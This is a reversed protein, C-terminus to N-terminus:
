RTTCTMQNGYRECNTTTPRNIPMQYAPVQYPPAVYVPQRYAGHPNWGEQAACGALPVLAVLLFRKM